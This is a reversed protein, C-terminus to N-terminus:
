EESQRQSKMMQDVAVDALLELLAIQGDSLRAELGAIEADSLHTKRQLRDKLRGKTAPAFPMSGRIISPEPSLRISLGENKEKKCM